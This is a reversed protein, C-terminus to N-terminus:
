SDREVRLSGGVKQYINSAFKEVTKNLWKENPNQRGKWRPSLWEEEVYVAYKINQGVVVSFHNLSRNYSSISAKLNGRRVPVNANISFILESKLQEVNVM